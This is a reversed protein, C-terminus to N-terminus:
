EECPFAQTRGESTPLRGAPNRWVDERRTV